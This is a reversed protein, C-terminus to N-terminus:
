KDFGYGNYINRKYIDYGYVHHLEDEIECMKHAIEGIKGRNKRNGCALWFEAQLDKYMKILYEKEEEINKFEMNILGM